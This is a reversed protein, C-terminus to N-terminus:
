SGSPSKISKKTIDLNEEVLCLIQNCQEVEKINPTWVNSATAMLIHAFAIHWRQTSVKFLRHAM